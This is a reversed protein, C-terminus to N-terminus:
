VRSLAVSFKMHFTPNNTTTIHKLENKLYRYAQHHYLCHQLYELEPVQSTSSTNMSCNLHSTISQILFHGHSESLPFISSRRPGPQHCPSTPCPAAPPGGPTESPGSQRTAPSIESAHDAVLLDPTQPRPSARRAGADTGKRRVQHEIALHHRLPSQCGWVAASGSDRRRSAWSGPHSVNVLLTSNVFDNM